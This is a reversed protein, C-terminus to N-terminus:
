GDGRVHAWFGSKRGHAKKAIEAKFLTAHTSIDPIAAADTNAPWIMDLRTLYRAAHTYAASKARCLIDTLLREICSRRQRRAMTYTGISGGGSSLVEYRRGDWTNRVVTLLSLKGARISDHPWGIFFMLASYSAKASSLM